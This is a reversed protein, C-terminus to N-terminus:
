GIGIYWYAIACKGLNGALKEKFFFIFFFFFYLFLPTPMDFETKLITINKKHLFM